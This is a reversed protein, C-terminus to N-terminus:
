HPMPGVNGVGDIFIRKAIWLLNLALGIIGLIKGARTLKQGSPDMKGEAMAKLDRHGLAWALAGFIWVPTGALGLILLLVGRHAKVPATPQLDNM